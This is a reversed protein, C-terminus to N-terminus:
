SQDFGEPSSLHLRRLPDESGSTEDASTFQSFSCVELKILEVAWTFVSNGTNAPSISLVISWHHVNQKEVGGEMGPIRPFLPTGGNSLTSSEVVRLPQCMRRANRDLASVRHVQDVRRRRAIAHPFNDIPNFGLVNLGHNAIRRRRANEIVDVDDVGQNGRLRRQVHQQDSAM